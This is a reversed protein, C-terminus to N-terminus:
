RRTCPASTRIPFICCASTAIAVRPAVKPPLAMPLTEPMAEIQLPSTLTFLEGDLAVTTHRHPLKITLSEVCFTELRDDKELTKLLGRVFIRLMQWRTVPKLVVVALLEKKMCHAVDMDLDRLQLANNGVFISLTRVRTTKGDAVLDVDLHRHRSLLSRLTSLIVVLRARGLLRTSRERERISKAYLGLSANILFYRDNARGLRVPRIEGTMALRLAEDPDEPIRHNPAFFTLPGCAVAGFDVGAKAAREAVARLTGDGGAAVVRGGDRKAAAVAREVAHDFPEGPRPQHHEFTAGLEQALRRAADPLNEGAGRGSKTNALLHIARCPTDSM